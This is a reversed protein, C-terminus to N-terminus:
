SYRYSTSTMKEVGDVVAQTFVELDVATVLMRRLEQEQGQLKALQKTERSRTQWIHERVRRYVGGLRNFHRNFEGVVHQSRRSLFDLFEGALTSANWGRRPFSRLMVKLTEQDNDLLMRFLQNKDIAQSEKLGFKEETIGSLQRWETLDIKM